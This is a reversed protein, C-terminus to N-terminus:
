EKGPDSFKLHDCNCLLLDRNRSFLPALAPLINFLAAYTAQEGHGPPFRRLEQDRTNGTGKDMKDAPVAKGLKASVKLVYDAISTILSAITNSELVTTIPILIRADIGRCESRYLADHGAKSHSKNGPKSSEEPPIVGRHSAFGSSSASAQNDLLSAVQRTSLASKDAGGAYTEAFVDDGAVQCDAGCYIDPNTM